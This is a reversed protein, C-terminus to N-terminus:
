TISSGTHMSQDVRYPRYGCSHVGLPQPRQTGPPRPRPSVCKRIAQPHRAEPITRVSAQSSICTCLSASVYIMINSRLTYVYRLALEAYLCFPRLIFATNCDKLVSGSSLPSYVIVIFYLTNHGWPRAICLHFIIIYM